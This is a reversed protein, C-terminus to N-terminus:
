LWLNLGLAQLDRAGSMALFMVNALEGKLNKAHCRGSNDPM